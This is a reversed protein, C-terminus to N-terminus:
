FLKLMKHQLKKKHVEICLDLLESSKTKTHKSVDITKCHLIM